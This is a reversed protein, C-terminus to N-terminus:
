STGEKSIVITMSKFLSLELKTLFVSKRDLYRTHFSIYARTIKYYCWHKRELALFAAAERARVGGQSDVDRGM